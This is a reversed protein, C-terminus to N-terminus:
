WVALQLVSGYTQPLPLSPRLFPFAVVKKCRNPVEDMTELMKALSDVFGGYSDIYIPIVMEPDRHAIAMVKERFEQSSEEDFKTVWIEGNADDKDKAM